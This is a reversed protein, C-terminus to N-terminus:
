FDFFLSLCVFGKKGKERGFLSNLFFFPSEEKRTEERSRRRYALLQVGFELIFAECFRKPPPDTLQKPPFCVLVPHFCWAFCLWPLFFHFHCGSFLSLVGFFFLAGSLFPFVLKRFDVSFGYSGRKSAQSLWSDESAGEFRQDSGDPMGVLILVTLISDLVIDNNQSAPCGM